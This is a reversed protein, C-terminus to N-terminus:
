TPLTLAWVTWLLSPALQQAYGSGVYVTGDVVSPGCGLPGIPRGTKFTGLMQGTKADLFLLHGQLDMSPWYIVGNAVTTPGLNYGLVPNMGRFLRLPSFTPIPNPTEWLIKGDLDLALAFSGHAVKAAGPPPNIM